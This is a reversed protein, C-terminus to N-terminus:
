LTTYKLVTEVTHYIKSSNRCHPINKYQEWLTTYKTKWKIPVVKYSLNTEELEGGGGIFMIFDSKWLMVPM